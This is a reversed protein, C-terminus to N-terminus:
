AGAGARALAPAGSQRAFAEAYWGGAAVLERHTGRAAVRGGDLVVIQDAMAVTALRHAIVIMTAAKDARLRKLVDLVAHESDADLNSTPEDLLLIPARRVLARALDLRQRQGGSLRAGGEGLRLAFGEPAADLFALAGARQAAERLEAESADARGYRIHEAATVDFLQPAQPVYAVARRLSDLAYDRSDRGDITVRGAAPRRLLVLIDILTSKGGGSPGVLATM